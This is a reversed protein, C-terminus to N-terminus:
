LVTHKLFFKHLNLIQPLLPCYYTNIIIFDSHHIKFQDSIQSRIKKMIEQESLNDRKKIREIRCRIPAYVTIIFDLEKYTNSEFLLASEKIIYPASIKKLWDHFDRQVAPHVINELMKRNQSNEFIIKRLLPKNLSNDPTYIQSGFLTSLKSKVSPDNTMLWKARIDSQYVPIGLAQFIKAVTTKGSGIGGTLGVKIM